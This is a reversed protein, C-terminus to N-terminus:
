FALYYIILILFIAHAYILLKTTNRFFLNVVMLALYLIWPFNVNKNNFYYLVGTISALVVLSVILLRKLIEPKM